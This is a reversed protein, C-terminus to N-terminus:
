RRWVYLPWYTGRFLAMKERRQATWRAWEKLRPLVLQKLDGSYRASKAWTYFLARIFTKLKERQRELAATIAILKPRFQHRQLSGRWIAQIREIAYRRVLAVAREPTLGEFGGRGKGTGSYPNSACAELAAMADHLRLTRTEAMKEGSGSCSSGNLCARGNEIINRLLSCEQRSLVEFPGPKENPASGSATGASSPMLLPTQFAMRLATLNKQVKQVLRGRAVAKFARQEEQLRGELKAEREIREQM